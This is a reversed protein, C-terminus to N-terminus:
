EGKSRFMSVLWAFAIGLIAAMGRYQVFDYGPVMRALIDPGFIASGAVIAAALIWSMGGSQGSIMQAFYEQISLAHKLMNAEETKVKNSALAKDKARDASDARLKNMNSKQLDEYWVDMMPVVSMAVKVLELKETAVTPHKVIPNAPYYILNVVEGNWKRAKLWVMGETGSQSVERLRTETGKLHNFSEELETYYQGQELDAESMIISLGSEITGAEYGLHRGVYFHMKGKNQEFLDKLEKGGVAEFTNLLESGFQVPLAFLSVKFRHRIHPMSMLYDAIRYPTPQRHYVAVRLGYVSAAIIAAIIIGFAVPAGTIWVLPNFDIM